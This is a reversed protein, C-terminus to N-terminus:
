DETYGNSEKGNTYSAYGYGYGYGYAYGYKRGYIYRGYRYTSQKISVDNAVINVNKIKNNDLQRLCEELIDKHTYNHKAIFLVNDVYQGIMFADAVAGVPTSDVIIYDYRKKLEEFLERNKQVNAALEGPNPPITGSFIIDLNEHYNYTIEELKKQGVLYNSIGYKISKELYQAIKPKRLDYGLLLTKKGSLAYIGALNISVFTKGEGSLASTVMISLTDKEGQMFNLRTRLARFSETFTSRPEDITPVKSQSVKHAISGLIPTDTVSEIDAKTRIKTNFAEAIILWLLPIGGGLMLAIIYNLRTKKVNTRGKLRAQDILMNDPSNSAQQIQAESRKQLLYTYYTDNVTLQRQIGLLEREKSPLEESQRQIEELQNNVEAISYNTSEIANKTAEILSSKIQEMKSDIVRHYPNKPALMQKQFQAETYQKIYASLMPDEIGITSPSILANDDENEIYDKLYQYYDRKVKLDVKEKELSNANQILLNTQASINMVNNKARYSQLSNESVALSDAVGYLQSTIFEITRIAEQNKRELNDKLFEEVLTNLFDIDRRPNPSVLSVEIITAEDMVFDIALRNSFENILSEESRHRFYVVPMSEDYYFDSKEIAIGFGAFYSTDGYAIKQSINGLVDNGKINLTFTDNDIAKVSFLIDEPINEGKILEVKIPANKYYPYQRFKEEFYFDLELPLANVARKVMSHSSLLVIQNNVNRYGGLGYDQMVSQAGVMSRQKFEEILVTSSTQYLPDITRNFYYTGIGFAVISLLFFYWNSLIKIIWKKLDISNEEDLPPYNPQFHPNHQTNQM